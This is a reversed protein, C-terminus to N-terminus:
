FPLLLFHYPLPWYGHVLIIKVNTKKKQQRKYTSGGVTPVSADITWVEKELISM